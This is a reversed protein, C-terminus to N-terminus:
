GIISTFVRFVPTTRPFCYNILAEPAIAPTVIMGDFDTHPAHLAEPTEPPECASSSTQRTEASSSGELFTLEVPNLAACNLVTNVEM